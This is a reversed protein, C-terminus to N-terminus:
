NMCHPQRQGGCVTVNMFQTGYVAQRDIEGENQAQVQETQGQSQGLITHIASSCRGIDIAKTKSALKLKFMKDNTVTVSVM